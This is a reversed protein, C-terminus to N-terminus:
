FHVLVTRSWLLIQELLRGGLATDLMSEAVSRKVSLVASVYNKVIVFYRHGYPIRRRVSYLIVHLVM